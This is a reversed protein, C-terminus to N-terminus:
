DKRSRTPTAEEESLRNGPSILADLNTRSGELREKRHSVLADMSSRQSGALGDDIQVEKWKKIFTEGTVPGTYTELLTEEFARQKLREEVQKRPIQHLPLSGPPDTDSMTVFPSLVSREMHEIPAVYTRVKRLDIIYGGHKTHWGMSGTRNGKYYGGKVAAQKTTLKLRKLTRQLPQTPKFM